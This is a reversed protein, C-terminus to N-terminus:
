VRDGDADVKEFSEGSFEPYVIDVSYHRKEPPQCAQFDDVSVLVQVTTDSISEILKAVNAASKISLTDM